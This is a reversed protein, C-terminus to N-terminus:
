SDQFSPDSIIIKYREFAQEHKHIRMYYRAQENLIYPDQPKITLAQKYIQLADYEQGHDM